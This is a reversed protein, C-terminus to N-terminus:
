KLSVLDGVLTLVLAITPIPIQSDFYEPYKVGESSKTRFWMRIIVRLIAPHLYM